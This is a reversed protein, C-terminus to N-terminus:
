VQFTSGLRQQTNHFLTDFWSTLHPGGGNTHLFVAKPPGSMKDLDGCFDVPNWKAFPCRAMARGGAKSHGTRLLPRRHQAIVLTTDLPATAANLDQHPLLRAREDRSTGDLLACNPENM